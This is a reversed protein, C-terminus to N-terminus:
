RGSQPRCPGNTEYQEYGHKSRLLDLRRIVHSSAEFHDPVVTNVVRGRQTDLSGFSRVVVLDGLLDRFVYIRYYRRRDHHIWARTPNNLLEM